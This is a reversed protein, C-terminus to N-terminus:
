STLKALEDGFEARIREWEMRFWPTFGYPDDAMEQELEEIFILM